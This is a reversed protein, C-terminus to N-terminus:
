EKRSKGNEQGFNCDGEKDEGVGLTKRKGKGM